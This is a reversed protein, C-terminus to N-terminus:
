ELRLNLRKIIGRYVAREDDISKAFIEPPMYASFVATPLKDRFEPRESIQAIAGVLKGVVERPTGRPAFIGFWAKLEFPVGLEKITPVGPLEPLRIDSFVALAKGRGARVHQIVAPELVVNIQGSLFDTIAQAMGKYPVHLLKMGTVAQLHEGALHLFTGDGSSAYTYKGPNRKAIDVFEAWTSAPFDKNVAVVTDLTAVRSVPVLDVAPDYPTKRLYPTITIMATTGYLLTYGDASSKAVADAAIDGAAGPRNEVIVQQGLAPRLLEAFVRASTDLGAGAPFPVILRIIKDPYEAHAGHGLFLVFLPFLLKM